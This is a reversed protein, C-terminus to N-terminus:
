GLALFEKMSGVYTRGVKLREGCNLDVFYEGKANPGGVIIANTNVITSRHIRMFYDPNLKAMLDKMTSRIVHTVGALHVCMFDGAADVWDIDKVAILRYTNGDKISLKDSSSFPASSSRQNEVAQDVAESSAKIKGFAELLVRKADSKSHVKDFREVARSVARAMLEEDIPKLIYDVAGVDFADIAYKNYATAFIVIPVVDAQLAEVVQFGNMVPMQIDIIMLDPSHEMVAHLAERGNKCEAVLEVQPIDELTCRLLRLALNEDDVIITKLVTM